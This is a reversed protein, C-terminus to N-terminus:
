YLFFFFNNFFFALFNSSATQTEVGSKNDNTLLSLMWIGIGISVSCKLGFVSEFLSSFSANVIFESTVFMCRARSRQLSFWILRLISTISLVLFGIIYEAIGSKM